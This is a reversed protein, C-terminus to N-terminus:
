SKTLPLHLSLNGPWPPVYAEWALPENYSDLPRFHKYGNSRDRQLLGNYNSFIFSLANSITTATVAFKTRSTGNIPMDFVRKSQGFQEKLASELEVTDYCGDSIVGKMYQQVKAVLTRSKNAFFRRTLEVFMGTCKEATWQQHFLGLVM